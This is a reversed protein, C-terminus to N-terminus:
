HSRACPITFSFETGVGEKTHMSIQGGLLEVLAKTIPLGLGIGELKEKKSISSREFEEFITDRENEPIGIGTDKVTFHALGEMCSCYLRIEGKRTFKIANTILNGLIQELKTKDTTILNCNPAIHKELHFKLGKRRAQLSYLDSISQILDSLLFSEMNKEIVGVEIKSIDIISNLIQLMREGCSRILSVYEQMEQSLDPTMEMMETVGLIGNMPTRIEHSFNALFSRKLQNSKKTEQYLRSLSENERQLEIHDNKISDIDTVTLIIQDDIDRFLDIRHWKQDAGFRLNGHKASLQSSDALIDSLLTEPHEVVCESFWKGKPNYGLTEIFKRNADTFHFDVVRHGLDNRHRMTAAAIPLNHLLGRYKEETRVLQDDINHERTYEQITSITGNLEGTSPDLDPIVSIKAWKLLDTGNERWGIIEDAIQKRSDLVQTVPHQSQPAELESDGLFYVKTKRVDISELENKDLNLIDLASKNAYTIDGQCNHILIGSQVKDLLGSLQQLHPLM